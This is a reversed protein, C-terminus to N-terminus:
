RCTDFVTGRRRGAFPDGLETSGSDGVYPYFVDVCYGDRHELAVQLAAVMEGDAPNRVRVNVFLATAKYRGNEAGERFSLLLQELAGEATVDDSEGPTGVTQILGDPLMVAGFPVFEGDERMLKEAFPVGESMLFEVERKSRPNSEERQDPTTAQPTGLLLVLALLANM